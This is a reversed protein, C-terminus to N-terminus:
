IHKIARIMRENGFIDERIEAKFGADRVIKLTQDGLYQNIEFYLRGNPNLGEEALKTIKKYFILPDNDKVYLALSPEHDLVNRHMEAKELDRVYPPNSVIVDFKGPLSELNLVNARIFKVGVANIQANEGSVKLAEESVDLATVKSQPFTKALSIAICGSGTGIDLFSGPVEEASSFDDKIWQVLDETEPRPILVNRNVRFKLGFFETEGTIYQIPEHASLRSLAHDLQEEESSNLTKSPDLALDIREWGLYFKVLLNFFSNAEERPYEDKLQNLFKIKYESILM